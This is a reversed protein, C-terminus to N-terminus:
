NKLEELHFQKIDEKLKSLDLGSSLIISSGSISISFKINFFKDAIEKPITIGYSPGYFKDKRIVRLKYQDYTQQPHSNAM